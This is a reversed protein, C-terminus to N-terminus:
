VRDEGTTCSIATLAIVTFDTLTYINTCSVNKSHLGSLTLSDSELSQISFYSLLNITQTYLTANGKFLVLHLSKYYFLCISVMPHFYM